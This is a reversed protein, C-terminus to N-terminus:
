DLDPFNHDISKANTHAIVSGVSTLYINQKISNYWLSASKIPEFSYVLDNFNNRVEGELKKDKSYMNWIKNLCEIQEDNIVTTEFVPISGEDLNIKIHQFRLQAIGSKDPVCLRVYGNILENDVLLNQPLNCKSLIKIVNIYESSEKKIGVCVYGNLKQALMEEFNRHAFFPILNIAGLISLNDIWLDDNPLNEFNLKSYLDSLVKLGIKMNGATPVIKTMAHFMTMAILADDDIQDIIEVARTISAKKKINIKNKIRHVLLESLIKYDDQRETCIATLQAKKLLVQFGPDSFSKFDSEIQQIKPVLVNEFKAIRKNAIATAENTCEKIAEKSMELYIARAREESIGNQIIVTGAQIQQSYDGAKQTQNTIEM